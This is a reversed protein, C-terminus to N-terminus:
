HVAVTASATRCSGVWPRWDDEVIAYLVQDLYRGNKRFSRRLVGEQVAGLKLLAGNGRGNQVAARAEMRHVGVTDFAFELVREAADSFVGSGWFDSGIAFGWEATEFTPDLSRIQFLGIATDFGRLTVAFCLFAGRTRGSRAWEIFREFEEVTAPPPSIFRSVEETTILEHLSPADSARLDRLVVQRGELVPLQRRWDTTTSSFSGVMVPELTAVDASYPMKEM